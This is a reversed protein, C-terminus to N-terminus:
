IVFNICNKFSKSPNYDEGAM